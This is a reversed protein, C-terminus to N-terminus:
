SDDILFCHKTKLQFIIRGNQQQSNIRICQSEDSESLSVIPQNRINEFFTLNDDNNNRQKKNINEKENITRQSERSACRKRSYYQQFSSYSNSNIDYKTALMQVVSDSFELQITSDSKSEDEHNIISKM